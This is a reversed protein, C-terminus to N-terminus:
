SKVAVAACFNYWRFFEEVAGFGSARLLAENEEYRYPILVNELAERKRTIEVDSYGNRRKMDYYHEIFLRNLTGNPSTIKEVLILCGNKALGEYINRILRERYLPRVFQLTLVLLVVSANEIRPMQHIDAEILDFRRGSPLDALKLRAQELMSASNDVGVFRVSADVKGDLREFSTGTSCGLDYVNTGPAAFDAALETVMRQIETYFPVSREVMDDFVAVVKDDFRFDAARAQADAFVQDKGAGKGYTTM